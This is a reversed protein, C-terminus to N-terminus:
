NLDSHNKNNGNDDKIDKFSVGDILKGIKNLKNLVLDGKEKIVGCVEGYEQLDNKFTGVSSSKLLKLYFDDLVQELQEFIQRTKDKNNNNSM